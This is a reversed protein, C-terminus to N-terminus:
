DGGQTPPREETVPREETIMSHRDVVLKSKKVVSETEPQLPDTLIENRPDVTEPVSQTSESLQLRPESEEKSPAKPAEAMQVEEELDLKVEKSFLPNPLQPIVPDAKDDAGGDEM